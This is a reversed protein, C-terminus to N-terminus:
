SPPDPVTQYGGEEEIAKAQGGKVVKRLTAYLPEALNAPVDLSVVGSQSGDNLLVAAQQQGSPGAEQRRLEIEAQQRLFRAKLCVGVWKYVIILVVLLLVGVAVIPLDGAMPLHLNILGGGSSQDNAVYATELATIRENHNDISEANQDIETNVRKVYEPAGGACM